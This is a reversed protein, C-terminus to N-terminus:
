SLGTGNKSEIMALVRGAVVSRSLAAFGEFCKNEKLDIRNLKELKPNMAVSAQDEGYPSTTHLM